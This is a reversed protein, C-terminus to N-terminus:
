ADGHDDDRGLSSREVLAIADELLDNREEATGHQAAFRAADCRDLLGELKRVDGQPVGRQELMRILEPRPRGTGSPGVKTVALDHLLVALTAHFGEGSPVAARATELRDRRLRRASSRRRADEDPGFKRWALAAAWAVAGAGPLALMATTWRTPTLWPEAAPERPLGDAVIIPSLTDERAADPTPTDTTAPAPPTPSSANSSVEIAIPEARAVEYRATSPDFYDIAIEPLSVTGAAEPIVLFSYTRSGGIRSETRMQSEVKPDYRRAGVITPWTGPDVLAINGDGSIEITWTLPQGAEVAVRDAKSTVAIKGVNNPSFNAPQGKAPLPLVEVEVAPGRDRRRRGITIEPAGIVLTGAKQPFLARHMGPRVRYAVGAVEEVTAEGEPLDYTYFDAFSPPTRLTVSAMLAREYVDMRYDLQEGVYAKAKDTTAWVFVDARAETPKTGAAIPVTAAADVAGVTISVKNSKVKTGSDDVSFSLDYTGAKLAIASLRLSTSSTRTNAGAGFAIRFGSGTSVSSTIEFADSMGDPLEPEPASGGGARMVELEMEIADGVKLSTASVRLEATVDGARAVRPVLTAGGMAGLGLLFTRRSRSGM